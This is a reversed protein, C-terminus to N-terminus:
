QQVLGGETTMCSRRRCITTSRIPMWGRMGWTGKECVTSARRPIPTFGSPTTTRRIPPRKALFGVSQQRQFVAPLVSYRGRRYLQLYRAACAIIDVEGAEILEIGHACSDVIVPEYQLGTAASFEEFFTAAMGGVKGDKVYQLPANGDCFAVKLTGMQAIHRKDDESLM